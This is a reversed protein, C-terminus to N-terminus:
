LGGDHLADPALTRRMADVTQDSVQAISARDLDKWHALLWRDSAKDLAQLWAFILEDPIDTRIVGLEQGRKVITMVWAILQRAFSALPERELAAPSLRRATNVAAFM